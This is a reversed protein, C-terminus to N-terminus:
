GFIGVLQEFFDVIAQLFGVFLGVITQIFSAIANIIQDFINM